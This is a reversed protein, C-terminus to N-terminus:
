AFGRIVQLRSTVKRLYIPALSRPRLGLVASVCAWWVNDSDCKLAVEGVEYLRALFACWSVAVMLHGSKCRLHVRRM